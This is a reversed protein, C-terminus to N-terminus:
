NTPSAPIRSKSSVVPASDNTPTAVNASASKAASQSSSNATKAASDPSSQDLVSSSTQVSMEANPVLNKSIRNQYGSLAAMPKGSIKQKEVNLFVPNANAVMGLKAAANSLNQPSSLSDIQAGIIATSEVLNAQQKKLSSIEYVGASTGITVLLQLVIIAVLGIGVAMLAAGAPKGSARSQVLQLQMERLGSVPRQLNLQSM